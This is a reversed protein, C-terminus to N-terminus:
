LTLISVYIGTVWPSQGPSFLKQGKLADEAHRGGTQPMRPRSRHANARHEMPPIRGTKAKRPTNPMDGGREPM